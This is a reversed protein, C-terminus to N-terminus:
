KDRVPRVSFGFYREYTYSIFKSKNFYLSYGSSDGYEFPTSSWYCGYQGAAFLGGGSRQGAAPFFISNGNPGLVSYGKGEVWTWTCESILEEVEANKPMRAPAGWIATAADYQPDGSIDTMLTCSSTSYSSKPEIEGWSFYDGYEQPNNAGVNCNAWLLGSTLGLDVWKSKESDEKIVPAVSYAKGALWNGGEFEFKLPESSSLDLHVTTGTLDVPACMFYIKVNEEASTVSINELKIDLSGTQVSTIAIAPSTLDVTGQLPYEGSLRALAYDGKPLTLNLEILCGLHKFEFNVKGETPTTAVAAMYDYKGLHATSANGNQTQGEYSVPIATKDLYFKGQMPYYAAYNSSAKLAWGGGTFAASNSGVGAGEVIPFDVQRGENPFIGVTDNEAWNFDVGEPSVNVTTRPSPTAWEFDSATMTVQQVDLVPAVEEVDNTCALLSCLGLGLLIRKM